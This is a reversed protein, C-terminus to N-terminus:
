CRTRRFSICFAMNFLNAYFTSNKAKLYEQVFLHIAITICTIFVFLFLDKAIIDRIVIFTEIKIKNHRIKIKKSLITGVCEIQIVICYLLNKNSFTKIANSQINKHFLIYYKKYKYFSYYM